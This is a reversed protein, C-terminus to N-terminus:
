EMAGGVPVVHQHPPCRPPPARPFTPSCPPPSWPRRCSSLSLNLNARSKVRGSASAGGVHCPADRFVIRHIRIVHVNSTAQTTRRSPYFRTAIASLPCQSGFSHADSRLSHLLTPHRIHPRPRKRHPESIQFPFERPPAPLAVRLREQAANITHLISM